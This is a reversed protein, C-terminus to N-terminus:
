PSFKRAQLLFYVLGMGVIPFEWIAENYRNVDVIISGGHLLAMVYTYFVVLSMALGWYYVFWNNM